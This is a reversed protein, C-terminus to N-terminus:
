PAVQLTTPLPYKSIDISVQSSLQVMLRFVDRNWSAREDLKESDPDSVQYYNGRYTLDIVPPAVLKQSPPWKLKIIPQREIEPVDELMGPDNLIYKQFTTQELASAALVGLFSRLVLHPNTTAQQATFARGQVSFGRGLIAKMNELTEGRYGPEGVLREFTQDSNVDLRFVPILEYSGVSWKNGVQGWVLQDSSDGGGGGGSSGSDKAGGGKPSNQKELSIVDNVSPPQDQLVGDVAPTFVKKAELLLHGDKQLERAIACAKLFPPYLNNQRRSDAPQPTNFYTIIAGDSAPVEIRDVMLRMLQDVPWGQQFLTYLIIPDIPQLLQQAVREDTVPIFTFQPQESATGALTGQGILLPNKRLSPTSEGALATLTSNWNYQVSIQGFQLFYTPEHQDLRALNLLLQRNSNEAYAQQFGGYDAKYRYSACGSVLFGGVVLLLLCAPFSPRKM